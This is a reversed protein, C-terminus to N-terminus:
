PALRPQQQTALRLQQQTAFRPRSKISKKGRANVGSVVSRYQVRKGIAKIAKVASPISKTIGM